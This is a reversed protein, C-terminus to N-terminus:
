VTAFRKYRLRFDFALDEVRKSDEFRIEEPCKDLIAHVTEWLEPAHHPTGHAFYYSELFWLFPRSANAAERFQELLSRGGREVTELTSSSPSIRQLLLGGDGNFASFYDDWWRQQSVTQNDNHKASLMESPPPVEFVACLADALLGYHAFIAKRDSM